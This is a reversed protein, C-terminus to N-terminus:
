ERPRHTVERQHISDLRADDLERADWNGIVNRTTVHWYEALKPFMDAGVLKLIGAVSPLDAAVIRHSSNELLILHVHKLHGLNQVM